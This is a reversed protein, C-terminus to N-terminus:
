MMCTFNPHNKDKKFFGGWETVVFGKRKFSSLQPAPPVSIKQDLAKFYLSVRLLSDPKPTITLPALQNITNQPMVGVFYYPSKPLAKTWYTSFQATERQNLGLQPLATQFLNALDTYAVVYGTQPQTIESDPIAAEWYLYPYTTNKDLITGDPHATVNWGNAPYLPNTYNLKGKPAVQVHVETITTPYLNIAPKCWAGLWPYTQQQQQVQFTQLQLNKQGAPTPVKIVQQGTINNTGSPKPCDNAIEPPVPGDKIRYYVDFPPLNNGSLQDCQAATAQCTYILEGVPVGFCLRPNNNGPTTNPIAIKDKGACEPNWNPESSGDFNSNNLIFIRHGNFSQSTPVLHTAEKQYINSKLLGYQDGNYTIVQGAGTLPHCAAGDGSDCCDYASGAPTQNQLKDLTPVAGGAMVAGFAAVIALVAVAYLAGNKAEGKMKKKNQRTKRAPTKATPKKKLKM